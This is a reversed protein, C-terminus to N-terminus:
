RMVVMTNVEIMVESAQRPTSASIPITFHNLNAGHGRREKVHSTRNRGPCECPPQRLPLHGHKEFAWQL